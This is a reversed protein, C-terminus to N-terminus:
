NINSMKKIENFLYNCSLVYIIISIPNFGCTLIGLLILQGMMAGKVQGYNENNINNKIKQFDKILVFKIIIFPFIMGFFSVFTMLTTMEINALGGVFGIGFCLIFMTLFLKTGILSRVKKVLHRDDMTRYQQNNQQEYNNM